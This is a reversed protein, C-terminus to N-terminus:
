PIRAHGRNRDRCITALIQDDEETWFNAMMDAATEASGPEGAPPPGPLEKVRVVLEVRRGDEIAPSTELEITKGHIVGHMTIEM